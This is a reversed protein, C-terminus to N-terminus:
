QAGPEPEESVLRREAPQTEDIDEQFTESALLVSIVTILAMFAMYVAVATYGYSALLAVAILPSLGGALVSALQYGLSAGSYRVRTGFLESFYAAQPGYMSDHGLNVGLVVALWILPEIGTNLLWFFPFAFLLSFVAGFLYVPRRGVRDSLAGFLPITALGIAAAIIVGRLGVGQELGVEEVVYTLVFATLIYFTGNEAIRMGMALLVNKPYTRLVDLIPMRAETGSEQVRMFAPSEMIKLRIFLGVGVLVISLLFPVRWGWTEPLTASTIAFVVNALLLGAPVGMQPWSGFFGRRGPPAHEVAMLVAGGWEGGVGIGQLLRLVVLLIPALVGVQEFTPLLGILFTAVGMILLSLVLMTKRGIRDGYHGFIVGGVPRAFFGVGYTAFALLTGQLPTAEPFFLSGFVLAAATGYLFFDYWEIATGIFSALAVQRISSTQGEHEGGIR